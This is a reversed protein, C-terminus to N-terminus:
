DKITDLAQKQADFITKVGARAMSLLKSFAEESFPTKEATGQIEVIEGKSTFVFNADADASSDELYDLDIILDGNYIGCSIAAVESLIPM